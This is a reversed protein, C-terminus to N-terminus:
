KPNTKLYVLEGEIGEPVSISMSPPKARLRQGGVAVAADLPISLYIEPEHVTVPVDLRELIAVLHDVGGNVDEPRWRPMRAYAEVLAWPEELSLDALISKEVQDM